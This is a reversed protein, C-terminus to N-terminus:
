KKKQIWKGGCCQTNMDMEAESKNSEELEKWLQKGTHYFWHCVPNRWTQPAMAECSKTIWALRINKYVTTLFPPSMCMSCKRTRVACMTFPGCQANKQPPDFKCILCKTNFSLCYMVESIHDVSKITISQEAQLEDMKLKIPRTNLSFLKEDLNVHAQSPIQAILLSILHFM